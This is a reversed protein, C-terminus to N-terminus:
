FGVIGACLETSGITIIVARAAHDTAATTVVVRPVATRRAPVVAAGAKVVVVEAEAESKDWNLSQFDKEKIRLM